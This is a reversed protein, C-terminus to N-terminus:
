VDQMLKELSITKKEKYQKRSKEVESELHLLKAKKTDTEITTSKVFPLQKLLEILFGFNAKNEVQIIIQIM